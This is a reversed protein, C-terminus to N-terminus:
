TQKLLQEKSGMLKFQICQADKHRTWPKGQAWGPWWVSAEQERAVAGPLKVEM